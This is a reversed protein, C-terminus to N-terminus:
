PVEDISEIDTVCPGIMTALPAEGAVMQEPTRAHLTGVVRVRKHRLRAM